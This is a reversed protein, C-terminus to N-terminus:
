IGAHLVKVSHPFSKTSIPRRRGRAFQVEAVADRSLAIVRTPFADGSTVGSADSLAKLESKAFISFVSPAKLELRVFLISFSLLFPFSHETEALRRSM